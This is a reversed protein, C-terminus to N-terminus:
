KEVLPEVIHFRLESEYLIEDLIEYVDKFSQKIKTNKDSFKPTLKYVKETVKKYGEPLIFNPDQELRSTFERIVESENFYAAEPEDFLATKEGKEIFVLKLYNFWEEVLQLHSLHGFCKKISEM